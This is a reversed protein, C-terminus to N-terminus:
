RAGRRIGALRPRVRREPQRPNEVIGVVTRRRGDLALTTGWSSRRPPRGRRRHGSGAPPRGPLQRPPARPARRAFPGHPDQARFEVTEVSGPVAISRYGIVESTGFWKRASDLAQRSRRRIPATSGCSTRQGLRVRRRGRRGLQLRDHRQRDRSRGRGHPAGAGPDAAAVRPPVHALGLPRGRSPRRCRREGATSSGPQHALTTM